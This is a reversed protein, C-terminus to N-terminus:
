TTPTGICVANGEPTHALARQFLDTTIDYRAYVPPGNLVHPPYAAEIAFTVHQGNPSRVILGFQSERSDDKSVDYLYYAGNENKFDLVPLTPIGATTEGCEVNRAYRVFAASYGSPLTGMLLLPPALDVVGGPMEVTITRSTGPLVGVYSPARCIPPPSDTGNGDYQEAVQYHYFGAPLDVDIDITKGRSYKLDFDRHAEGAADGLGQFKYTMHLVAADPLETCPTLRLHLHGYQEDARGAVGFVFAAVAIVFFLRRM